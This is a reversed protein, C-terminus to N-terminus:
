LILEKIFIKVYIYQLLLKFECYGDCRSTKLKKNYPSDVTVVSAYMVQDHNCQASYKGKCDRLSYVPKLHQLFNILCTYISYSSEVKIWNSEQDIHVKEL